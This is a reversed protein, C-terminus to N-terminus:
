DPGDAKRQVARGTVPDVRERAISRRFGVDQMRLVVEVAEVIQRKSGSRPDDPGFLPQTIAQVMLAKGWQADKGVDSMGHCALLKFLDGNSKFTSVESLMEDRQVAATHPETLNLHSLSVATNILEKASFNGCEFDPTAVFFSGTFQEAEAARGVLRILESRDGDLIIVSFVGAKRDAELSEAFALGKGGREAFQGRVDILQVHGLAGIAHDLAGFETSGEVYCRVKVGFDLGLLTLYDRLDRRPADFVRENGYLMQRAGPFWQGPGVEDEEPLVKGFAGEAARRIVEVMSLLHMACGLHGKLKNRERPKMLRLLVHVSRNDDLTEANLALHQRMQRIHQSGLQVILQRVRQEYASQPESPIRPPEAGLHVVEYTIPDAVIAMESVSNWYDFRQEFEISSTWRRCGEIQHDIVKRVGEEYVLYQTSSTEIKLTRQVHFLVFIRNPHFKLTLHDDVVSMESISSGYGQERRELKRGDCYTPTDFIGSSCLSYLSPNVIEKVCSVLDARLMGISWLGVIQEATFLGLGMSNALKALQEPGLLRRRWSESTCAAEARLDLLTVAEM